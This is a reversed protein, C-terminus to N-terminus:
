SRKRCLFVGEEASATIWEHVLEIKHKELLDRLLNPTHRYSFFLRFREGASFAFEQDDLRITQSKRFRYNAEVRFLNESQVISFEIDNPSVELGADIVTTALWCRTLDNDYLPLIKEVGGRYDSGPALNASVLLMDNDRLATSLPKLAEEPEFNPLMGFFSVVRKAAGPVQGDLFMTLDPAEALDLLVPSSKLALENTARLHATLALPLSVDAPVYHLRKGSLSKLLTLDKQGGGCGISVLAVENGVVLKSIERFAREYTRLCDDDTRAPSYAEHLALWQQAQKESQYHFQHNMQRTRFSALYAARTRDPFRSAHITVAIPKEV